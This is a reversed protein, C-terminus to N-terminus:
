KAKGCCFKWKMQSGCTCPTNRGIKPETRVEVYKGRKLPKDILGPLFPAKLILPEIDERSILKEGEGLSARLAEKDVIQNADVIEVGNEIAQEIATKPLAGKGGVVAVRNYKRKLKVEAVAVPEEKDQKKM